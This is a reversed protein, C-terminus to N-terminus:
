YNGVFWERGEDYAFLEICALYFVRWRNWRATADGDGNKASEAYAEEFVPTIETPHADQLRRWPELTLSYHRGDVAWRNLLLHHSPFHLFLDYSPMTGGTFFYKAMWSNEEGTDFHHPWERHVFVHVFLRGTEPVLWSSVKKFLEEYNKIHEFMNADKTVVTVNKFGKKACVSEIYQRQTSSNSIATIPSNPFKEALFLCLSGWGCGLDLLRQGDVLEAREAYTDLMRNELENLLKHVADPILPLTYDPSPYICSSYKLRAGLCKLFYQTPVEYHQKNAEKTHIAITSSKKLAGIFERWDPLLGKDVLPEALDTLLM